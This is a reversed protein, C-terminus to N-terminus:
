GEQLSRGWLAAPVQSNNHERAQLIKGDRM